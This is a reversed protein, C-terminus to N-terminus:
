ARQGNRSRAPRASSRFVSIVPRKEQYDDDLSFCQYSQLILKQTVKTGICNKSWNKPGIKRVLKKQIIKKKKKGNCAKPDSYRRDQKRCFLSFIFTQRTNLNKVDFSGIVNLTTYLTVLYTPVYKLM